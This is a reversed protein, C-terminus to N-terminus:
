YVDWKGDARDQIEYYSEGIELSQNKIVNDKNETSSTNNNSCGILSMSGIIIASSLAVLKKFKM